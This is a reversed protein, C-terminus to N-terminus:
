VTRHLELYGDAGYHLTNRSFYPPVQCDFHAHDHSVDSRLLDTRSAIDLRLRDGAALAVPAPTLSFRLIVPTGPILPESAEGDQAIECRTSRMADIRRRAPRVMGMSLLTAHGQRDVLSLRAVVHSDIENCSFKLNLTVAGAYECPRRATWEYGLTQNVVEDFGGVTQAGMPVAAWRNLGGSPMSTSLRHVQEDPGGGHLYLRETMGPAPFDQASRYDNKGHLWYRVPAQRAYGNDADRLIHDFFALAELQWDYNPLEFVAKGLIMWKRGLPTRANDWLDYSGFQHINWNAMNQVVVFPIEIRDLQGSPGPPMVNTRRTKGDILWNAYWRRAPLIPTKRMFGYLISQMRKRLQPQWWRKLPSNTLQSICARLLPPVRLGVVTRNFNAGLWLSLFFNNPAGGYMVIHRFYDTCMENAFFAKLAPPRRVAVQAQVLGYYSSGYMVVEGNCWPQAAAWAILQEHDDVDQENGFVAPEGQSRGMGRRTCVVHAYGRDTFVPPCGVENSGTPVGASHLEKSYAGFVVIAPFRGTAQPLYVDAALALGGDVPVCQDALIRCGLGSMVPKGPQWAALQPETLRARLPILNDLWRPRRPTAASTVSM